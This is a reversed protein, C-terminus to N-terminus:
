GLPKMELILLDIYLLIQYPNYVTLNSMNMETFILDTM